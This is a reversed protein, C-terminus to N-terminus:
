RSLSLNLAPSRSLSISLSPSRSLSHHGVLRYCAGTIGLYDWSITTAACLKREAILFVGHHAVSLVRFIFM